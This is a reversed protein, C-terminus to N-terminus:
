KHMELLCFFINKVKHVNQWFINKLCKKVWFDSIKELLLLDDGNNSESINSVPM